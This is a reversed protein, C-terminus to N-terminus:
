GKNLTSPTVIDSDGVNAHDASKAPTVPVGPFTAIKPNKPSVGEVPSSCNLYINGSADISVNGGTAQMSGGEGTMTIGGPAHFQVVQGSINIKSEGDMNITPAAIDLTTGAKLSGYEHSQIQLIQMSDLQMISGSLAKYVAGAMHTQDGVAQTNIQGLSILQVQNPGDIKVEHDSKIHIEGKYENRATIRINGKESLVNIANQDDAGDNDEVTLYHAKGVYVQDSLKVVDTDINHCYAYRKEGVIEGKQKTFQDRKDGGFTEHKTGFCLYYDDQYTIRYSNGITKMVRDGNPQMEDFTGSRHFLHIREHDRTDDFEFVHGSESAMVKNFPYVAGYVESPDPESWTGISVQSGIDRANNVVVDEIRNDVKWQLITGGLSENRALRHTDPEGPHKPYQNSEAITSESSARSTYVGDLKYSIDFGSEADIPRVSLNDVPDFFGKQNDGVSFNNPSREEAIGPIVGLIVPDQCLEGDRFFGMVWSGEKPPVVREEQNAPLLLTAWPLDKTPIGSPGKDDTHVGLVRVRCRGIKLPDNRDEVVGQWWYFGDKGMFNNM